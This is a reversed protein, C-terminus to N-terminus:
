EVGIRVNRTQDTGNQGKFTLDFSTSEDLTVQFTGTAGGEYLLVDLSYHNVILVKNVYKSSWEITASGGPPAIRSPNARAYEIEPAHSSSQSAPTQSGSSVTTPSTLSRWPSDGSCAVNLILAVGILALFLNKM